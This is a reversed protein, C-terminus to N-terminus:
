LERRTHFPSLLMFGGSEPPHAHPAMRYSACAAGMAINMHWHRSQWRKVPVPWAQTTISAFCAVDM